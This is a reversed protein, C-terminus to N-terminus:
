FPRFTEVSLFSIHCIVNKFNHNHFYYSIALLLNILSEVNTITFVNIALSDKGVLIDYIQSEM